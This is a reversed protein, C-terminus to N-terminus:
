GGDHTLRDLRALLRLSRTWTWAQAGCANLTFWEGAEATRACEATPCRSEEYPMDRGQIFCHLPTIVPQIAVSMHLVDHEYSAPIREARLVTM